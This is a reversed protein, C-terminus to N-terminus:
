DATQVCRVRSWLRLRLRLWALGPGTWRCVLPSHPPCKDEQAFCGPPIHLISYPRHQHQYARRLPPLPTRWLLLRAGCCWHGARYAVTPRPYCLLVTTPPTIPLCSPPCGIDIPRQLPVTHTYHILVTHTRHILVTHTRHILVTHTRHSLVTHTRHTLVTHTRHILVTHTRYSYPILVTHSYLILVTHTRYSYSILVTPTRHSYPILVTHTRYSYPTLVTHTCHILVTYSYLTHTRHVLVTYSYPTLVTYSYPTLVTHTRYSYLILVTHSYSPHTCHILVTHTRHILVTHTRHSLVTYTSAHTTRVQPTNPLIRGGFWWVLDSVAHRPRSVSLMNWRLQEERSSGSSRSSSASGATDQMAHKSRWSARLSLPDTLLALAPDSPGVIDAWRRVADVGRVVFAVCAVLTDQTAHASFAEHLLQSRRTPDPANKKLNTQQHRHLHVLRLGVLDLGEDRVRQFVRAIGRGGDRETFMHPKLVCVVASSSGGCHLLHHFLNQEGNSGEDDVAAEMARGEM